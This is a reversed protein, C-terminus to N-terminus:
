HWMRVLMEIQLGRDVVQVETYSDPLDRFAKAGLALLRDAWDEYTEVNQTLQQFRSLTTKPLKHEGFREGLKMLLSCYSYAEKGKRIVAYCRSNQWSLVLLSM